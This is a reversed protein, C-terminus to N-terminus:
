ATAVDKQSNRARRQAVVARAASRDRRTPCGNPDALHAVVEGRTAFTTRCYPCSRLLPM